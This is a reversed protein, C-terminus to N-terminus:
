IGLKNWSLLVALTVLTGAFGGVLWKPITLPLIQRGFDNLLDLCSMNLEACTHTCCFFPSARCCGCRRAWLLKSAELRACFLFHNLRHRDLGETPFHKHCHITWIITFGLSCIRQPGCTIGAVCDSELHHHSHHSPCISEFAHHRWTRTGAITSNFM